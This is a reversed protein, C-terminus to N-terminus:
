FDPLIRCRSAVTAFYQTAGALGTLTANLTDVPVSTGLIASTNLVEVAQVYYSEVTSGGFDVCAEWTLAVATNSLSSVSPNQPEQPTSPMDTTYVVTSSPSSAGLANIAVLTIMYDTLPLLNGVVCRLILGECRGVNTDGTKVILLFSTLPVGGTDVPDEWVLYLAGGTVNEAQPAEPAEPTSVVSTTGVAIATADSPGADNSIQVSFSYSTSPLLGGVMVYIYTTDDTELRRARIMSIGDLDGESVQLRRQSAALSGIRLRKISDAPIAIGNAYVAYTLAMLSVGGTDSPAPIALTTAGGSTSIVRPEGPASPATTNLTEFTMPDANTSEGLDNVAFVAFSYATTAVLGGLCAVATPAQTSLQTQTSEDNAYVNYYKM